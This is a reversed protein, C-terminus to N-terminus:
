GPPPSSQRLRYQRANHRGGCASMSCWRASRNKSPDFVIWRCHQCAKLRLWTGDRQADVIALVLRGVLAELPGGRPAVAITEGRTDLGFHVDGAYAHLASWATAEHLGATNAVILALLLERLDILRALQARTAAVPPAGEGILWHDLSAPSDFREAGNERNISNCFRRVLELEGPAQRDSPWWAHPLVRGAADLPHGSAM